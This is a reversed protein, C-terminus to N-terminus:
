ALAAIRWPAFDGRLLRLLDSSSLMAVRGKITKSTL